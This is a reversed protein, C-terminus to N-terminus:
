KGASFVEELHEMLVELKASEQTFEGEEAALLQPSNCIQRLKSLGQLIFMGAQSMGESEMKELILDKFKDRYFDYVKRQAKAMECYLVIETKEPLEKAVEKKKRSLIFPTFLSAYNPLWKRM